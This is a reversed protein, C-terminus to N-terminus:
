PTYDLEDSKVAATEVVVAEGSSLRHIQVSALSVTFGKSVPDPTPDPDNNGSSSSGGGGGGGCATLAALILAALGLKFISFGSNM